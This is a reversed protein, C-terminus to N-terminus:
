IAVGGFEHHPLESTGFSSLVQLQIHATLRAAEWLAILEGSLDESLGMELALKAAGEESGDFLKRYEACTVVDHRALVDSLPLSVESGFELGSLLRKSPKGPRVSPSPGRADGLGAPLIAGRGQEEVGGARFGSSAAM